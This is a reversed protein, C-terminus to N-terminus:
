GFLSMLKEPTLASDQAGDLVDEAIQKKEAHLELVKEEVTDSAILRYVTVPNKQGIRHVRDAAQNEVAPNWWPDLLIVYSASTLNLGMGGAKLSILFFDGDGRQFDDVLRAREAAPTQGDLYMHSWGHAAVTKRVIDLYDTFQSFILARHNNQKLEELLNVLADLKASTTASEGLVLSPHCCYRRLRTLEALISIRNDAGGDALSELALRRCTEYGAREEEGLLVPLTIETKDPLDDLVDRKVRRLIFPSVLRKLQPTARGSITFHHIFDSIPGLLGPNLFESISWLDSLRNEVPTGTAAVRFSSKLRRVAHARKSADNKIAQAEDLIVGNWEKEAFKEERAVLLGYGAIVVDGSAAADVKQMDDAKEDWAMITNLTPAFKAIESRWNGCVSAPAIVLSPGSKARELLLAIIQLTKGLGMDDALCAGFNCSALRSLWEYGSLQYPRLNAKLREPPEIQKAFADRITEARKTIEQPLHFDRSQNAFAEDLMPIAAPPIELSKDKIRGAAELAELRKALSATLRIYDDEGFQVFDGIRKKFAGILEAISLMRGNDLPFEGNVSFWFDKGGAASLKWAGKQPYSINLRKGKRWEIRIDDGLEALAALAKLEHLPSDISWSYDELAWSDFDKLRSVVKDASEIEAALDRVLVATAKNHAILREPQGVGPLFVLDADELPKSHVTIALTDGTYELRVLAKTEGAVREMDSSEGVASLDGQIPAIKGLRPLMERFQEVGEKPIEISGNLGFTKFVEITNQVSKSFQYFFFKSADETSRIIEYNGEVHCCWPELSLKLAGTPTSKIALPLDRRELTIPEFIKEGNNMYREMTLADHGCLAEIVNHAISTTSYVSKLAVLNKIIAKDADILIEDYKGSVLTKLSIPKDSSADDSCRPGRYCPTVGYCLYRLKTKEGDTNEVIDEDDDDDDFLDIPNFDFRSDYDENSLILAWAIRGSKAANKKGKAKTIKPLCKDFANIIFPWPSAAKGLEKLWIGGKDTVSQALSKAVTASEGKFDFAILYLGALTPAGQMLAKKANVLAIKAADALSGRSPPLILSNIAVGAACAPAYSEEEDFEYYDPTGLDIFSSSLSERTSHYNLAYNSVGYYFCSSVCAFKQSLRKVTSIKKSAVAEIAAALLFAGGMLLLDDQKIATTKCFGELSTALLKSSSFIDGKALDKCSAFYNKINKDSLDAPLVDLWCAHGTWICLAAYEIAAMPTNQISPFKDHWASLLSTSDYGLCFLVNSFIHFIRADCNEPLHLEPMVASPPLIKTYLCAANWIVSITSKQEKMIWSNTKGGTILALILTLSNRNARYKVDEWFRKTTETTSTLYIKILLATADIDLKGTVSVQLSSKRLAKTGNVLLKAALLRKCIKACKDKDYAAGFFVDNMEYSLEASTHKDDGCLFFSLVIKEEATLKEIEKASINEEKM